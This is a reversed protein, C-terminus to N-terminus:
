IRRLLCEVLSAGVSVRRHVSQVLIRNIIIVERLSVNRKLLYMTFANQKVFVLDFRAAMLLPCGGGVIAYISTENTLTKDILTKCPMMWLTDMLWIDALLHTIYVKVVFARKRLFFVDILHYLVAEDSLLKSHPFSFSLTLSNGGVMSSLNTIVHFLGEV